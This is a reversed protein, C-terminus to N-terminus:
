RRDPNANRDGVADTRKVESIWREVLALGADDVLKTGLPPMQALADRSRMRYPLVSLDPRGPVVRFADGPQGPPRFASPRAVTSALAAAPAFGGDGREDLVLAVPALPGEPNHCGGCNAHLYGLAARATASDADIRPPTDVFRQPLNRLLGRAVLTPVDAGGAPAPEAHPAGPDRDPSLQLLSFGLV